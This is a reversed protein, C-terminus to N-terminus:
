PTTKPYAVNACHSTHCPLLNFKVDLQNPICCIVDCLEKVSSKLPQRVDAASRATQASLRGVCRALNVCGM